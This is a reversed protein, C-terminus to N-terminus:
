TCPSDHGSICLGFVCMEFVCSCVYWIVKEWRSVVPDPQETYGEQRRLEVLAAIISNKYLRDYDTIFFVETLTTNHLLGRALTRPIPLTDCTLETLSHNHSLMDALADTDLANDRISLSELSSNYHLAKFLAM